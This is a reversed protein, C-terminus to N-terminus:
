EGQNIHPEGNGAVIRKKRLEDLVENILAYDTSALHEFLYQPTLASSPIGEFSVQQCIFALDILAINQKTHKDSQENTLDDLSLGMEEITELARCEGAVTLLNARFAYYTNGQYNLGLLLKSKM